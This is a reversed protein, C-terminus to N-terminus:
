GAQSSPAPFRAILSRILESKTMGRRVAEEELQQKEYDTLRIDIRTTKM